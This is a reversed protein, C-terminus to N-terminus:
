SSRTAVDRLALAHPRRKHTVGASKCVASTERANTLGVVSPMALERQVFLRRSNSVACHKSTM